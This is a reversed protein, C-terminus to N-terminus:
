KKEVLYTKEILNGTGKIFPLIWIRKKEKFRDSKLQRFFGRVWFRYNFHFKEGAVTREIYEKLKGNLRIVMSSPIPSKGNKMRRQINKQSRAHEIIEVEPNNIFNLFNIVFKHVFERAKKDTTPNERVNMKFSKYEVSITMNKNFTDFWYEDNAQLSSTTINLDKGVIKEDDKLDDVKLVGEGFLIGVIHKADIDVGIDSLWEQKFDVDLFMKPYPLHVEDNKNPPDTLCLLRKIDDSIEFVRCKVLSETINRDFEEGSQQLSMVMEPMNKKAYQFTRFTDTFKVFNECNM